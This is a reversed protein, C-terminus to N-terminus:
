SENALLLSGKAHIYRKLASEAGSVWAHMNWHCPVLFDVDGHLKFQSYAKELSLGM